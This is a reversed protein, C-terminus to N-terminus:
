SFPQGRFASVAVLIEEEIEQFVAPLGREYGPPKFSQLWPWQAQQGERPGQRHQEEHGGGGGPGLCLAGEWQRWCLQCWVQKQTNELQGNKDMNLEAILNFSKEISSNFQSFSRDKSFLQSFDSISIVINVSYKLTNLLSVNQNSYRLIIHTVFSGVIGKWHPNISNFAKFLRTSHHSHSSHVPPLQDVSLM